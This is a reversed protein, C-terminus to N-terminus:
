DVTSCNTSESSPVKTYLKQVFTSSKMQVLRSSWRLNLHRAVDDVAYEDDPERCQAASNQLEKVADLVNLGSEIQVTAIMDHDFKDANM